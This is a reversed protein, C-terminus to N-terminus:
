WNIRWSLQLLRGGPDLANATDRYGSTVEYSGLTTSSRTNNPNFNVHNFVNFVEFRLELNARGTLAITKALSMDFRYFNPGRVFVHRPVCQGGFIELCDGTSAPAFYRGSPPGMPYGDPAATPDYSFAKMTNDIVDQPLSYVRVFGAAPDFTKRIKFMDKLDDANFGVFKVGGFDYLRGLHVRAAGNFQWDGVLRNLGRGVGGLWKRGQGFPLDYVWNAKFSHPLVSTNRALQREQRLTLLESTNGNAYVYSGTVLLGDAFRRRLEVQLSDYRTFSDNHYYYAGALSPNMVWFNAPLGAALANDRFSQRGYLGSNSGNSAPSWPSPDIWYLPSYFYSNSFYSAGPTKTPDYSAPDSAASKPKGTFHALYIPLPSTNTGPGFYAFTTGRGAQMNARLNQMALRFEDMFGNEILAAENFNDSVMGNRNRTAVYRVEVVTNKSLARQVGGSFTHAYPVTYDPDIVYVSNTVLGTMPFRPTPDFDPPGLRDRQSLLVPLKEGPRLLNNLTMNRNTTIYAGPNSEFIGSYQALDDRTYALSYGVRLVPNEGLIRKLWDPQRSLTYAVGLSPALNNRDVNYGDSGKKLQYFQPTKGTLTGPKFVNFNGNADLGSLGAVDAKTAYAWGSTLAKFPLQLEYRLGLNLTLNSRLRWSDQFYFGLERQSSKRTRPGLYVYQNTAEDLYSTANISTVRGTLLAYLGRAYSISTSTAGPFNIARDRDFYVLAPDAADIGFSIGPVYTKSQTSYYIQTLSAGLTMSHAGKIWNLTDEFTYSPANRWNNGSNVTASTLPSPFSLNFGGQNAVPGVFDQYSVHPYFKIRGGSGGLRVENVMDKSFVSRVNIAFQFRGSLNDAFNPFGPFRPDGNNLVDPSDIFKQYWLSFGARHKSTLNVDVRGTPYKRTAVFSPQWTYRNFNPDSPYPQIVGTTTTAQAIDGLLKVITPDPAWTQVNGSADRLKFLDVTRPGSTTNYTFIGQLALPTVVTRDRAVSAPRRFDQFNFFFFAKDHGDFLYPIVIPGGIRGGFEHMKINDKPLGNRINFWYNTNLVPNRLSHYLSGQLRNTGSRTVFRIQVAGMGVSDAGANSMSVTVAEIADLNPRVYAFLAENSKYANDQVNIGDITINTASARLGLVVSNRVTGVTDVGPLNAMFDLSNKTLLPLQSIQTSNLTAAVTASQTQILESTGEVLITEELKGVELTVNVERPVAALLTVGSVVATKFGMLSVTVTYTGPLLAPVTFRGEGDAVAEFQAGTADNKVVVSAGPVVGGSIDRVIGSLSATTAGGQARAPAVNAAVLLVFVIVGSLGPHWRKM